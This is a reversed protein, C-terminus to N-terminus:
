EVMEMKAGCNPCYEWITPEGNCTPVNEKGKCRSCMFRSDGTEGMWIWRGHKVEEVDDMKSGLGKGIQELQSLALDREWRIQDIISRAVVDATPYETPKIYEVETWCLEEGDDHRAVIHILEYGEKELKEADIYRSM